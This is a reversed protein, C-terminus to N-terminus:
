FALMVVIIGVAVAAVTGLIVAAMKYREIREEIDAADEREVTDGEELRELVSVDFRKHAQLPAHGERLSELDTLLEEVNNYRDERRKAMMIEIV